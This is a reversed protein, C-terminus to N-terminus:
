ISEHRTKKKAQVARMLALQDLRGLAKPAPRVEQVKKIGAVPNVTIHKSEVAWTFLASLAALARNITAPRQGLFELSPSVLHFAVATHSGTFENNKYPNCYARALFGCLGYAAFEKGPVPTNSIPDEFTPSFNVGHYLGGLQETEAVMVEILYSIGNLELSQRKYWHRKVGFLQDLLQRFHDEGVFGLTEPKPSQTENKMVALLDVVVKSDQCESLRSIDFQDCVLKAKANPSLGKFQKIFARLPLDHDKVHAYILKEM